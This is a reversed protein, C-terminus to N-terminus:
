SQRGDKGPVISADTEDLGLDGPEVQGAPPQQGPGPRDAPVPQHQRQATPGVVEGDRAQGLARDRQVRGAVGFPDPRRGAVREVGGRGSGVGRLLAAQRGHHDAPAAGGSDLQSALQGLDQGPHGAAV